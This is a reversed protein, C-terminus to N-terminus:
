RVQAGLSDTARVVVQLRSQPAVSREIMLFQKAVPTVDYNSFFSGTQFDGEFLLRPVGIRLEPETTVDVAMMRRGDISRYFIENGLPSWVPERGGGPSVVVREGPGPHRQVYVEEERGPELAAYLMWRGDPSLM